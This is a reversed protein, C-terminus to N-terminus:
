AKKVKKFFVWGVLFIGVPVLVVKVATWTAATNDLGSQIDTDVVGTARAYNALVAGGLCLAGVRVYKNSAVTKITNVLKNM